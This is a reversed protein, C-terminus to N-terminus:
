EERPRGLVSKRLSQCVRAVSSYVSNQHRSKRVILLFRDAWNMRRAVVDSRHYAAMSRQARAQEEDKRYLHSSRLAGCDSQGFRSSRGIQRRTSLRVRVATEMAACPSCPERTRERVPDTARQVSSWGRGYRLVLARARAGSVGGKGERGVREVLCRKRTM